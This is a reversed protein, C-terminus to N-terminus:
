PIEVKVKLKGKEFVKFSVERFFIEFFYSVFVKDASETGRSISATVFKKAERQNHLTSFINSKSSFTRSLIRKLQRFDDYCDKLFLGSMNM